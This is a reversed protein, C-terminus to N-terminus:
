DGDELLVHAYTDLTISKRAHGLQAALNTVPFV